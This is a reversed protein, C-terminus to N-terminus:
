FSSPISRLWRRGVQQVSSCASLGLDTGYFDCPLNSIRSLETPKCHSWHLSPVLHNIHHVCIPSDHLQRCRLMCPSAHTHSRTGTTTVKCAQLHMGIHRAPLGANCEGFALQLAATVDESLMFRRFRDYCTPTWLKFPKPPQAPKSDEINLIHHPKVQHQNMHQGHPHEMSQTQPSLVICGPQHLSQSPTASM